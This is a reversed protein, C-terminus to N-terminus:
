VKNHKQMSASMKLKISCYKYKLFVFRGCTDIHKSIFVIPTTLLVRSPKLPVRNRQSRSYEVVELANIDCYVSVLSRKINSKYFIKFCPFTIHLRAWFIQGRIYVSMNCVKSWVSRANYRLYKIVYRTCKYMFYMQLVIIITILETKKGPWKTGAADACFFAYRSKKWLNKDSLLSYNVFHTQFILTKKV